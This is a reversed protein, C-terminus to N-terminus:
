ASLFRVGTLEESQRWLDSMLKTTIRKNQPSTRVPYGRMNLFGGPGYYAGNEIQEATAAYLTPLAGMEASQAAISNALHGAKVLWNRGKMAPGKELINSASYGPHAAVAILDSKEKELKQALHLMFLMTAQKSDFYAQWSRYRKNKNLNSLDIKGMKEASSSVVVIRSGATLSLIEFLRATLAFHGLHNVGFQMEFGDITKNYPIAMIGANNILIDLKGFSKKFSESFDRISILDSLDLDMLTLEAKPVDKKIQTAAQEAKERSRCAMVVHAGKGALGKTTYYGIGSNAGTVIAIRGAQPPMYSVDWKNM